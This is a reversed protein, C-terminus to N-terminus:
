LDGQLEALVAEVHAAAGDVVGAVDDGRGVAALAVVGVLDEDDDALVLEVVAVVDAHGVVHGSDEDVGVVVRQGELM